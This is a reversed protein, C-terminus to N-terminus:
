KVEFDQKGNSAQEGSNVKEQAKEMQEGEKKAKFKQDVKDMIQRVTMQAEVYEELFHWLGIALMIIGFFTDLGTLFFFGGLVLATFPEGFLKINEDSQLFPFLRKVIALPNGRHTSPVVKRGKYFPLYKLLEAATRILTFASLILLAYSGDWLVKGTFPFAAFIVMVPILLAVRGTHSLM